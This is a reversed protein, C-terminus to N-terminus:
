GVVGVATRLGTASKVATIPWQSRAVDRTGTDHGISARVIIVLRPHHSPYLLAVGDAPFRHGIFASMTALAEDAVAMFLHLAKRFAFVIAFADDGVAVALAEALVQVGGIPRRRSVPRRVLEKTTADV